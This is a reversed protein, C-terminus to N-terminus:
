EMRDPDVNREPMLMNGKGESAYRVNTSKSGLVSQKGKGLADVDLGENSPGPDKWEGQGM